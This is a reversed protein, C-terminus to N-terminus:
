LSKVTWAGDGEVYRTVQHEVRDEVRLDRETFRFLLATETLCRTDHIDSPLYFQVQGARVITSNRKVLRVRNAADVARAYTCM